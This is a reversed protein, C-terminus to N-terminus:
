DDTDFGRGKPAVAPEALAENLGSPDNFALANV